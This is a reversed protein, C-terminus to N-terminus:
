VGNGCIGLAMAIVLASAASLLTGILYYEATIRNDEIEKFRAVSKATLVFAITSYQNYMVLILIILRELYGILKGANKGAQPKAQADAPQVQKCKQVMLSVPRMAGAIAIVLTIPLVPLYVIQQTVFARATLERGFLYWVLVMLGIHAAQDALFITLAYESKRRCIALKLSDILFHAIGMSLWLWLLAASWSIGLALVPALTLVYVLSHKAVGKFTDRCQQAMKDTQFYFDSLIHGLLMVLFQTSLMM